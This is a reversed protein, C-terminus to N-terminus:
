SEGACGENLRVQTWVGGGGQEGADMKEEATMLGDLAAREEEGVLRSSNM